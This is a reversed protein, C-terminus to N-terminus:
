NLLKNRIGAKGCLLFDMILKETYTEMWFIITRIVGITLMVYKIGHISVHQNTAVAMQVEDVGNDVRGIGTAIVNIAAERGSERTPLSASQRIIM